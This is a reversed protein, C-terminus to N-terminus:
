RKLFSTVAHRVRGAFWPGFRAAGALLRDRRSIASDATAGEARTLVYSGALDPLLVGAIKNLECFEDVARTAGPWHGSSYDHVFIMGGPNMRPWFLKLGEAVPEYLDCDISVFAYEDARMEDTASEPFIGVVWRNGAYDGVVARAAALSTDKFAKQKGEGMGEEFQQEAFGEFTDALYMTRGFREAYYSLLASSQGQYVGLEAVAGSCRSLVHKLNLILSWVRAIDLGRYPDKQIWRGFAEDFDPHAHFEAYSSPQVIAALHRTYSHSREYGRENWITELEKM